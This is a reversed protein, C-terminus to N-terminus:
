NFKSVSLNNLQANQFTNNQVLNTGSPKRNDSSYMRSNDLLTSANKINDENTVVAPLRETTNDIKKTSKGENDSQKQDDILTILSIYENEM